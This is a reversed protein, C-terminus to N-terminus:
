RRRAPSSKVAFLALYPTAVHAAFRAPAFGRVIRLAARGLAGLGDSNMMAFRDHCAFGQRELFRALGYYSFWHVAPYTAFNALEPRSSRTLRLVRRKLPAPYWSYGALTFEQQVPCLGNTTSLYLVGGPKLVRSAELLVSQWDEVHELLEPLMCIDISQDSWPLDTATGVEFAADLGAQLARERAIGILAANVDLGVVRHGLEAWLRTSAGAGCGIDAICLGHAPQDAERSWLALVKDRLVRFRVDTEASTSQKAYYEVFRPDSSHDPGSASSSTPM